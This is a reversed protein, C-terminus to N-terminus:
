RAACASHNRDLSDIMNLVNRISRRREQDKLKRQANRWRKTGKRPPAKEARKVSIHEPHINRYHDHSKIYELYEMITDFSVRQDHYGAVASPAENKLTKTNRHYLATKGTPTVIVIWKSITSTVKFNQHRFYFAMGNERCYDVIADEEQRYQNAIPNCCKCLRYGKTFADALIEFSETMEHGENKVYRCQGTHVIRRSSRINYYYM